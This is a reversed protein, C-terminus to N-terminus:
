WGDDNDTRAWRPARLVTIGQEGEFPDYGPWVGTASCDRFQECALRNQGAGDDLDRADIEYCEVLYPPSTEQVVLVFRIEIGPRITWVGDRYWAGQLHYRFRGIARTVADPDASETTKYDPVILPRGPTGHPLWDLRARRWVGTEPDVWIITQEAQGSGPAFLKSATRHEALKAAMAKITEAQARLVPIQGGARAKAAAEKATNKRWDAEDIVALEAGVGLQRTHAATGFEMRRTPGDLGYRYLAPCKLLKRAGSSSLSGWPVPDAHYAWEPMDPYAGPRTVEYDGLDTGAPQGASV